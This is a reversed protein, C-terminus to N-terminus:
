FVYVSEGGSVPLVHVVLFFTESATVLAAVSVIILKIISDAVFMATAMFPFDTRSIVSAPVISPPMLLM